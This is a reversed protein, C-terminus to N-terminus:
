MLKYDFPFKKCIVMRKLLNGLHGSDVVVSEQVEVNATLSRIGHYCNLSAAHIGGNDLRIHGLSITINVDDVMHQAHRVSCNKAFKFGIGHHPINM